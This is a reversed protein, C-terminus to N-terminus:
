YNKQVKTFKFRYFKNVSEIIISFLVTSLLTYAFFPIGLIYCTVIGELSYGYM